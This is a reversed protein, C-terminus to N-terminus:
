LLHQVNIEFNPTRTVRELLQMSRSNITPEFFSREKFSSYWVVATQDKWPGIKSWIYQDIRCKPIKIQNSYISSQIPGSEAPYWNLDNYSIVETPYQSSHRIHKVSFRKLKQVTSVLTTITKHCRYM